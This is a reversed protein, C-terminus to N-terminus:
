SSTDWKKTATQTTPNEVQAMAQSVTFLCIASLILPFLKKM